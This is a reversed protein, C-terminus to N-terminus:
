AKKRFSIFSGLIISIFVILYIMPWTTPLQIVEVENNNWNKLTVSEKNTSNLNTESNIDMSGGMPSVDTPAWEDVVVDWAVTQKDTVQTEWAQVNNDEVVVWETTISWDDWFEVGDVFEEWVFANTSLFSFMLVLLLIKKINKM